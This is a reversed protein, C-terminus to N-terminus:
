QTRDKKQNFLKDLIQKMDEKNYNEDIEKVENLLINLISRYELATLKQEGLLTKAEKFAMRIIDTNSNLKNSM